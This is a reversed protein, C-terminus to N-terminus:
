HGLIRDGLPDDEQKLWPIPFSHYSRPFLLPEHILSCFCSPTLNWQRHPDSCTHQFPMLHSCKSLPEHSTQLLWNKSSPGTNRATFERYPGSPQAICSLLCQDIAGAKQGVRSCLVDILQSNQSHVWSHGSVVDGYQGLPLGLPSDSLFASSSIHALWHLLLVLIAWTFVHQYIHKTSFYILLQWICSGTVLIYLSRKCAVLERLTLRRCTSFSASSPYHWREM